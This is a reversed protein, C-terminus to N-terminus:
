DNDRVEILRDAGAANRAFLYSYNEESRVLIDDILIPNTTEGSRFIRIKYRGPDLMLVDTSEALENLVFTTQGPLAENEPYIYVDITGFFKTARVVRVEGKGFTTDENDRYSFLNQGGGDQTFAVLTYNTNLEFTAETQRVIAGTTANRVQVNHNGNTFIGTSSTQGFTVSQGLQENDVFANIPDTLSTANVFRVRSNNGSNFPSDSGGCGIAGLVCIAGLLPAILKRM